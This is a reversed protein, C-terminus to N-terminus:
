ILARSVMTIMTPIVIIMIGCWCCMVREYRNSKGTRGRVKEVDKAKGKGNEKGTGKRRM